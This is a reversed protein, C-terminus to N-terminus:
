AGTEWHFALFEIETEAIFSQDNWEDSMQMAWQVQGEWHYAHPISSSELSLSYQEITAQFSEPSIHKYLNYTDILFSTNVSVPAFHHDPYRQIMLLQLGKWRDELWNMCCLWFHAANRYHKKAGRFFYFDAESSRDNSYQITFPQHLVLRKTSIMNVTADLETRTFM